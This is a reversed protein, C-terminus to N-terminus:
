VGVDPGYCLMEEGIDEAEYLETAEPDNQFRAILGSPGQSFTWCQPDLRDEYLFCIQGDREYWVGHKCDGDLFSWVVRRNDLYREAGYASGGLGYFLTKGRTYDDFEEATMAEAAWAPPGIALLLILLARRM